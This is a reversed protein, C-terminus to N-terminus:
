SICNEREVYHFSLPIQQDREKVIFAVNNEQSGTIIISDYNSKWQINHFTNSNWSEVETQSLFLAFRVLGLYDQQKEKEKEKERKTANDFDTFWYGGLKAKEVGFVYTYNIKSYETKVYAVIPIDYTKDGEDDDDDNDYLILYTSNFVFFDTVEASVQINCIHKLNAIEDVLGFWLPSAAQISIIKIDSKSLDYFMYLEKKYMMSGCYELQEFNTNSSQLLLQLNINMLSLLEENTRIKLDKSIHYYPLVLKENERKLLYSLYPKLHSTNIYFGCIHIKIAQISSTCLKFANFQLDKLQLSM